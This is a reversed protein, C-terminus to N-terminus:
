TILTEAVIKKFVLHTKRFDNKSIYLPYFPLFLIKNGKQIIQM